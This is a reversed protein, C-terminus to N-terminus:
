NIIVREIIKENDIEFSFFYLGQELVESSDWNQMFMGNIVDNEITRVLTGDIRYIELTVNSSTESEIKIDMVGNNPNPYVSIIAEEEEEITYCVPESPPSPTEDECIAIVQWVFCEELLTDIDYDLDNLDFHNTLTDIPDIYLQNDCCDINIDDLNPFVVMYSIAGPVPDWTLDTGDVQLNTPATASCRPPCEENIEIIIENDYPEGCTTTGSIFVSFSSIDSGGPICFTGNSNQIVPEDIIYNVDLLNGTSINVCDEGCPIIYSDGNLDDFNIGDVYAAVNDSGEHCCSTIIIDDIAMESQSIGDSRNAMFPFIWLQSYNDDAVFTVTVDTWTNLYPGM